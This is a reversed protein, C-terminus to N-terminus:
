SKPKFIISPKFKDKYEFGEAEQTTGYKEKLEDMPGSDLAYMPCAEVCIPNKGQELRELCYDCKQMKANDETGFQPINWPCAKLCHMECEKNGVCKARDVIVVGDNDRKSIAKEPCVRICPPKECHNCSISLYAVFPMPFNGKEIIKV